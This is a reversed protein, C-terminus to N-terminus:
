TVFGSKKAWLWVGVSLAGAIWLFRDVVTKGISRYVGATLKEVAKEAAKEAIEEIQDESLHSEARQTITNKPPTM